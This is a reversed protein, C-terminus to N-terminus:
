LNLARLHLNMLIQLTFGIEYFPVQVQKELKPAMTTPNNLPVHKVETLFLRAREM